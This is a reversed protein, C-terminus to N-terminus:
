EPETITLRRSGGPVRLEQRLGSPWHVVIKRVRADDGLGFTLTSSSQAMYSMAPAVTQVLVRRPTHVEVRAGGAERPTRTAILDIRLSPISFRQENRLLRPPAGHQAIVLDLDGDGDFDASAVGRAVVAPLGTDAAAAPTADIWAPGGNWWFRPVAAFEREEEFHHTDPEARGGGSFFDLRGDLDYDLVAIGLKGPLFVMSEDGAAAETTLAAHLVGFREDLGGVQAFPLSSASALGAAVGEQRRDTALPVRRFTGDGQNLLLVSESRHYTFLLDLRGDSNADVPVVALAKARPFRTDPDLMRLGAGGAEGAFRGDGLNRYVTPLVGMFGTPAGYSHGVQSVLFATRLDVDWPWRAYHCVILDLRGDDDYDLWTAGTSWTNDEGGVGALETVDEFRGNGRNRFLHNTGVCTIYLDPRGDDDFDGATASMGQLEVNLGAVATVDTFRGTGDNRLLTCSGRTVRKALPEDWPWPAGGVFFLDEHGDGNYDFCVVGGGLTTPSEASAPSVQLGGLGSEDTVDTFRPAPAQRGPPAPPFWWAFLVGTAIAALVIPLLVPVLPPVVQATPPM